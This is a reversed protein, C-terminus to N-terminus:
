ETKPYPLFDSSRNDGYGNNYDLVVGDQQWIPKFDSYGCSGSPSIDQYTGKFGWHPWTGNYLGIKTKPIGLVKDVM